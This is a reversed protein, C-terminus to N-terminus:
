VCAECLLCLPGPEARRRVRLTRSADIETGRSLHCLSDGMMVTAFAAPAVVQLVRQKKGRWCSYDGGYVM